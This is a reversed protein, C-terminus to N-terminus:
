SAPPAPEPKPGSVRLNVLRKMLDFWFPSGLMLAFTTLLLGVLKRAVRERDDRLQKLESEQWWLPVGLKQMQGSVELVPRVLDSGSVPSADGRKVAAEAAAVMGARLTADGHVAEAIRVSDINFLVTVALAVGFTWRNVRRKYSGAVRDMAGQYWEMIQGRLRRRDGEAEDLFTILARRVGLDDPLKEVADRLKEMSDTRESSTEGVVGLLGATFLRADLYSPLRGSVVRTGTAPHALVQSKMSGLLEDLARDLMKAREDRRAAIIEVIGSCVASFFFYVFVLAIATEIVTSGLLM